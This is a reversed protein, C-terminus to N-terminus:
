KACTFQVAISIPTGAGTDINTTYVLNHDDLKVINYKTTSGNTNLVSIEDGSKNINYLFNSPTVNPLSLTGGCHTDHTSCREFKVTANAYGLSALDLTIGFVSAKKYTWTGELKNLAQQDKACAMIFILPFVFIIKKM